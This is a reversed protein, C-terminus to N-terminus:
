GGSRGVEPPWAGIQDVKGGPFTDLIRDPYRGVAAAVLRQSGLGLKTWNGGSFLARFDDMQDGAVARIWLRM